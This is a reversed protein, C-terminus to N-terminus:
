GALAEERTAYVGFAHSLLTVNLMRRLRSDSCVVALRGGTARARKGARHLVALLDADADPRERLDVLLETEGLELALDLCRAVGAAGDPMPDCILVVPRRANAGEHRIEIM